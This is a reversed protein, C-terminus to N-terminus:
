TSLIMLYEPIEIDFYKKLVYLDLEIGDNGVLIEPINFEGKVEDMSLGGNIFFDFPSYNQIASYINAVSKHLDLHIRPRWTVSRGIQYFKRPVAGVFLKVNNSYKANLRKSAVPIAIRLDYMNFCKPIYHTEDGVTIPEVEEFDLDILKVKYKKVIERLGIENVNQELYGDASEAITCKVNHKSLYTIIM